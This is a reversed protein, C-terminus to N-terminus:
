AARAHEALWRNVLRVAAVARGASVTPFQELFEALPESGIMYDFLNKLPVRSGCFVPWGGMIEPDSHIVPVGTASMAKVAETVDAVFPKGARADAEMGACARRLTAAAQERSVAPFEDLFADLPYGDALHDLLAGVPVATGSFVPVEATIEIDGHLPNTATANM